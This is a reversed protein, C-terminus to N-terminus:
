EATGIKSAIVLDFHCLGDLVRGDFTLGVMSWVVFRWAVEVVVLRLDWFM